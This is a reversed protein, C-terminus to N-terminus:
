NRKSSNSLSQELENMTKLIGERIDKWANESSHRLNEIKSLIAKKQEKLNEMKDTLESKTTEHLETGKDRLAQIKGELDHFQERLYQEFNEKEKKATAIHEQLTNASQEQTHNPTNKDPYASSPFVVWSLANVMFVFCVIKSGRQTMALFEAM